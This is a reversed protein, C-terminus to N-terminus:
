RYEIGLPEWVNYFQIPLLKKLVKISLTPHTNQISLWFKMLYKHNFSM